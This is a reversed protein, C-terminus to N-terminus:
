HFYKQFFEQINKFLYRDQLKDSLNLVMQSLVGAVSYIYQTRQEQCNTQSKLMSIRRASGLHLCLFVLGSVELSSCRTVTGECYPGWGWLPNELEKEPRRLTSLM